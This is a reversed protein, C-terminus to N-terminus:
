SYCESYTLGTIYKSNFFTNELGFTASLLYHAMSIKANVKYYSLSHFATRRAKIWLLESSSTASTGVNWLIGILDKSIESYVEADM